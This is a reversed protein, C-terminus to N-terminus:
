WPTRSTLRAARHTPPAGTGFYDGSREIASGHNGGVRVSPAQHGSMADRTIWLGLRVADAPDPVRLMLADGVTKVYEGDVRPLEARVANAFEEEVFQM